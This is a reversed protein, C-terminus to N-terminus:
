IFRLELDKISIGVKQLRESLKKQIESKITLLQSNIIPKQTKIICTRGIYQVSLLYSEIDRGTFYFAYVEKVTSWALSEQISKEVGKRRLSDWVKLKKESMVIVTNCVRM